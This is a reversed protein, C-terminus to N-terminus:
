HQNDKNKIKEITNNVNINWQKVSQGRSLVSFFEVNYGVTYLKEQKYKNSIVFRYIFLYIGWVQSLKLVLLDTMENFIQWDLNFHKYEYKSNSQPYYPSSKQKVTRQNLVHTNVTARFM